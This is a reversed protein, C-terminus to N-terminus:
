KKELDAEKEALKSKRGGEERDLESKRKDFEAQLAEREAQLQKDQEIRLQITGQHLTKLSNEVIGRLHQLETGVLELHATDGKSAAISSELSIAKLHKKALSIFRVLDLHNVKAGEQNGPSSGFQKLTLTVNDKLKDPVRVIQLRIDHNLKYTFNQLLDSGEELIAKLEENTDIEGHPVTIGSASSLTDFTATSFQYASEEFVANMASVIEKDSQRVIPFTVNQWSMKGVLLQILPDGPSIYACSLSM